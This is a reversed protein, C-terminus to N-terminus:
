AMTGKFVDRAKGPDERGSASTIWCALKTGSGALLAKVTEVFHNACNRAQGHLATTFEACNQVLM